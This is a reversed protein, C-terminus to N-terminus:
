IHIRSLGLDNQLVYQAVAQPDDYKVLDIPHWSTENTKYSVILELIGSMHRHGEIAKLEFPHSLNDDKSSVNLATTMSDFDGESARMDVQETLEDNSSPEDEDDSKSQSRFPIHTPPEETIDSHTDAYRTICPEGIVTEESM